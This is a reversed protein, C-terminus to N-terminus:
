RQEPPTENTPVGELAETAQGAVWLDIIDGVRIKGGGTAPNQRIVTGPAVGPTPESIITGINLDSGRIILQAEDLSKGVLDPVDVATNGLGDGVVLDIRSGKPLLTGPEIKKSGLWQELVANEELAPIYRIQGRFLGVSRLLNEASLVSLNDSVLDPMKILPATATTVTLYIKRGEKVLSNPLPYQSLVTHPAAGAVFTCDSVVYDLDRDNLLSEVEEVNMKRLDPVTINQGHHTSWPLYVFFFGLFLVLLFCVLIAAHLFVDKKSRTSLFIAM